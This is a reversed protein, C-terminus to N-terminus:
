QYEIIQKISQIGHLKQITKWGVRPLPVTM